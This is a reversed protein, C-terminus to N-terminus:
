DSKTRRRLHLIEFELRLEPEIKNDVQFVEWGSKGLVEIFSTKYDSVMINALTDGVNEQSFKIYSGRDVKDWKEGFRSILKLTTDNKEITVEVWNEDEAGQRFASFMLHSTSHMQISLIKKQKYTNIEYQINLNGYEWSDYAQQKQPTTDVAEVETNCGLVQTILALCGVLCVIRKLTRVQTELCNIREENQMTIAGESHIICYKFADRIGGDLPEDTTNLPHQSNVLREFLRILRNKQTIALLVKSM